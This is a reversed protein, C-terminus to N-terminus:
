VYANFKDNYVTVLDCILFFCVSVSTYLSMVIRSAKRLCQPLFSFELGQGLGKLCQLYCKLALKPKNKNEYQLGKEYLNDRAVKDLVDANGDIGEDTFRYQCLM